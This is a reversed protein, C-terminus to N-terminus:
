RYFFLHDAITTAERFWDGVGFYFMGAAIALPPGFPIAGIPLDEQPSSDDQYTKIKLKKRFILDIGIWVSAIAAGAFISFLAGQWGLIAGIGGLMKVDGMGLAEKRLVASGLIAIWLSVGSGVLVGKIAVSLGHLHDSSQVANHLSPVWFSLSAGLLVMGITFCDPIYLFKLDILFAPLLFGFLVMGAFATVPPYLSWCAVFLVGLCLDVMCARNLINRRIGGGSGFGCGGFPIYDAWGRGRFVALAIQYASLETPQCSIFPYVLRGTMGGAFFVLM